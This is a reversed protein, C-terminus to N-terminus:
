VRDGELSMEEVLVENEAEGNLKPLPEKAGLREERGTGWSITDISTPPRGGQERQWPSCLVVLGPVWVM